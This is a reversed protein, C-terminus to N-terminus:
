TRFSKQSPLWDSRFESQVGRLINRFLIPTIRQGQHRGEQTYAFGFRPGLSLNDSEFPKQPDRPPGWVFNVADILGDLNFLGAPQNDYRTYGTYHGYRDYRTGLNLVLKRNVRWDDQLFLGFNVMRSWFAPQGGNFLVSAPENLMLDQLTQYTVLASESDPTGGQILNLSGGFKWSHRAGERSITEAIHERHERTERPLITSRGFGDM